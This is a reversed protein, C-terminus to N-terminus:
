GKRMAEILRHICDRDHTDETEDALRELKETLTDGGSRSYHGRVYHRSRNSYGGRGYTGRMDAQWEGDSRSYGGDECMEIKDINKVTHTLKDVTDLDGASLEGKDAIEEIESCLMDRLKELAKMSM